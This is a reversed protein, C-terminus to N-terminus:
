GGTIFQSFDIKSIDNNVNRIFDSIHKKADNEVNKQVMNLIDPMKEGQNFGDPLPYATKASSTSRGIVHKGWTMQGPKTMLPGSGQNGHLVVSVRVFGDEPLNDMKIGIELIVHSDTIERNTEEVVGAAFLRMIKSGNGFAVLSAMVIRQLIISLSDLNWDIVDRIMQMAGASDFGLKNPHWDSM